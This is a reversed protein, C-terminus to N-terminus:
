GGVKGAIVLISLTDKNGKVSATLKDRLTKSRQFAECTKAALGMKMIRFYAYMPITVISGDKFYIRVDRNGGWISIRCARGCFVDWLRIKEDSRLKRMKPLKRM